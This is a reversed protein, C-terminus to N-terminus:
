MGLSLVKPHSKTHVDQRHCFPFASKTESSGQAGAGVQGAPWCGTVERQGCDEVSLAHWLKSGSSAECVPGVWKM